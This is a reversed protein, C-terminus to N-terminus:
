RSFKWIFGSKLHVPNQDASTQQYILILVKNATLLKWLSEVGRYVWMLEMFLAFGSFNHVAM